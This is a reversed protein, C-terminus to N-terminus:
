LPYLGGHIVIAVSIYPGGCMVIIIAIHPGGYMTYPGRYMVTIIAIDPDGYSLTIIAELASV